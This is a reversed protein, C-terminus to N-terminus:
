RGKIQGQDAGSRGKIEGQDGSCARAQLLHVGECAEARATEDHRHDVYLPQPAAAAGVEQAGRPLHAIEADDRVSRGDIEGHGRGIERAGGM